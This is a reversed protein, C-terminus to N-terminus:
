AGVATRLRTGACVVDLAPCDACARESPTPVFAGARIRGIAASLQAELQPVDESTFLTVVPEDPQELFQYVVEVKEAGARFCALAYVLRQLGYDAETM